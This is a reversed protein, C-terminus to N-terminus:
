IQKRQVTGREDILFWLVATGGVGSDRLLPPYRRRLSQAIEPSNVLEPKQTYPTYVPGDTISPKRRIRPPDLKPVYRGLDFRPITLSPAPVELLRPLLGSLVGDSQSQRDSP